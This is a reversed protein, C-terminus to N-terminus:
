LAKPMGVGVGPDFNQYSGYRSFAPQIPPRDRDLCASVNKLSTQSYLTVKRVVMPFFPNSTGPAAARAAARLAFSARSIARTTGAPPPSSPAAYRAYLCLM